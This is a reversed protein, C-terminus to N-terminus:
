LCQRIIKGRMKEDDDMVNRIVNQSIIKFVVRNSEDRKRERGDMLVPFCQESEYQGCWLFIDDAM